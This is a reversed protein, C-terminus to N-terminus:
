SHNEPYYSYENRNAEKLSIYIMIQKKTFVIYHKSLFVVLMGVMPRKFAFSNEKARKQRLKLVSM